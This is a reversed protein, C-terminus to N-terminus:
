RKIFQEYGKTESKFVPETIDADNKKYFNGFKFEIMRYENAENKIRNIIRTIKFSPFQEEEVTIGEPYKLALDSLYAEREERSM